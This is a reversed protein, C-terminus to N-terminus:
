DVTFPAVYRGSRCLWRMQGSVLWVWAYRCPHDSLESVPRAKTTERHSPRLTPAQSGAQGGIRGVGSPNDKCRGTPRTGTRADVPAAPRIQRAQALPRPERTRRGAPAHWGEVTFPVAIVVMSSARTMVPPTSVRASM